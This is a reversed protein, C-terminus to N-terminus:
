GYPMETLGPFPSHDDPVTENRVVIEATETASTTTRGMNEFMERFSDEAERVEKEVILRRRILSVVIALFSNADLDPSALDVGHLRADGYEWFWNDRIWACLFHIVRYTKGLLVRDAM